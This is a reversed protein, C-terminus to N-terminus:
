LKLLGTRKFDDGVLGSHTVLKVNKGHIFEDVAIKAGLFKLSYYEDLYIFGGTNLRPWVKNLTTMYSEYLDCDVFAAYVVEPLNDDNMTDEFFGDVLVINTLGLLSIKRELIERNASSFDGSSSLTYESLEERRTQLHSIKDQMHRMSRLRRVQDAQRPPLKSLDYELAGPANPVNKKPFGTFSDFGIVKKRSGLERLLLATALLTHGRFVGAEVIDGPMFSETLRVYNFWLDLKGPRKYDYINLYNFEWAFKPNVGYVESVVLTYAPTSNCM